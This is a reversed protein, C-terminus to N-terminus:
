ASVGRLREAPAAIPDRLFVPKFGAGAIADAATDFELVDTAVLSPAIREGAILSLVAPINARAHSLGGTLTLCNLFMHLLPMEPDTFHLSTNVCVGDPETALLCSRLTGGSVDATANVTIAYRHREPDLEDPRCARAGLREALECRAADADVYRVDGAGLARAIDAAYLGISGSGLILVDAGPRAALYPGVTRWADTLNDGVSVAELASVSPPLRVLSHDALPVRVLDSFLGGYDAGVPIGYMAIAGDYSARCFLPRRDLCRDCAGCSIHYSMAVVDGRRLGIVGPGVELVEGVGEHGIAFPTESGPVPVRSHVIVQDLDCTSVAIPRILADTPASITPEPEERWELSTSGNWYLVKM